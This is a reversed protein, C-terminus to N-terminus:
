CSCLFELWCLQGPWQPVCDWWWSFTDACPPVIFNCWIIRRDTIM